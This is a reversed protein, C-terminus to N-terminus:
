EGANRIKREDAELRLIVGEFLWRIRAEPQIGSEAQLIDEMWSNEPRMHFDRGLVLWLCVFRCLSNASVFGFSRAIDVGERIEFKLEAHAFSNCVQPLEVLLFERLRAEFHLSVADAFIRIQDERITLPM